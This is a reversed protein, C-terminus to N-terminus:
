EDKIEEKITRKTAEGRSESDCVPCRLIQGHGQPYNVVVGHKKCLSAYFPLEGSWGIKSHKGLPVKFGLGAMKRQMPTLCIGTEVELIMESWKSEDKKRRIVFIYVAICYAVWFGFVQLM